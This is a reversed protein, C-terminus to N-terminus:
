SALLSYNISSWLTCISQQGNIHDIEIACKSLIGRSEYSKCSRGWSSSSSSVTTDAFYLLINPRRLRPTRAFLSPPRMHVSIEVTWKCVFVRMWSRLHRFANIRLYVRKNRKERHGQTRTNEKVEVSVNCKTYKWVWMWTRDARVYYCSSVPM